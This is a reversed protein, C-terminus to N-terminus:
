MDHQILQWTLYRSAAFRADRDPVDAGSYEGKVVIVPVKPAIGLTSGYMYAAMATEHDHYGLQEYLNSKTAEKPTLFPSYISDEDIDCGLAGPM